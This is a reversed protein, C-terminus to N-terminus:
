GGTEEVRIPPGEAPRPARAAQALGLAILGQGATYTAMVFADSRPGADRLVFKRGAIMADSAMFLGAGATIARRAQPPVDEGLRTSSAVMATIMAAYAAVAGRLRPSGRGAAWSVAPVLSGGGVLAAVTLRRNTPDSLARGRALFTATYAAHAGFFSGVGALFASERQWLLAVDGGGSLGQALLGGARTLGGRHHATEAPPATATGFAAMLSPMLLPKSLVRLRRRGPDPHGALYTDVAAAAVYVAGAAVATGPAPVRDRHPM